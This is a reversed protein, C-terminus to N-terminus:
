ARGSITQPSCHVLPANSAGVVALLPAAPHHGVDGLERDAPLGVVGAFEGLVVLLIERAVTLRWAPPVAGAGAGEPQLAFCRQGPELGHEFAAVEGSTLQEAARM